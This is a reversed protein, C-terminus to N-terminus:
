TIRRRAALTPLTACLQAHAAALQAARETPPTEATLWTRVRHVYHPWLGHAAEKPNSGRNRVAHWAHALAQTWPCSDYHAHPPALTNLTSLMTARRHSNLPRHAPRYPPATSGPAPHHSWNATLALLVPVAQDYIQPLHPISPM